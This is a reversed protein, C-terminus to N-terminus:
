YWVSIWLFRIIWNLFVVWGVTPHFSLCVKNWLFRGAVVLPGVVAISQCKFTLSISCSKWNLWFISDWLWCAFIWSFEYVWEKSVASKVTEHVLHGRGNRVMGVWFDNFYSKVKRFKCWCAFYWNMGDIWEQSVTLKLTVHGSQDRGNKVM